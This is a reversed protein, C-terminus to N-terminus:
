VTVNEASLYPCPDSKSSGVWKKVVWGVLCVLGSMFCSFIDEFTSCAGCNTLCDDQLRFLINYGHPASKIKLKYFQKQNLLGRSTQM